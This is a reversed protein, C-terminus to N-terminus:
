GAFKLGCHAKCGNMVNARLAKFPENGGPTCDSIPSMVHVIKALKVFDPGSMIAVDKPPSIGLLAWMDIAWKERESLHAAASGESASSADSSM